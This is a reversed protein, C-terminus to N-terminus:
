LRRGAAAIAQDSVLIPAHHGLALAIADSPRADIVLTRSGQRIHLSGHFTNARLADVQVRELEGGLQGMVSDLLDVTLPRVYHRGESRLTIAHGESSGVYITLSNRADVLQVAYGGGGDPSVDGLTMARYGTPIEASRHPGTRGTFYLTSGAAAALVTIAILGARFRPSDIANM